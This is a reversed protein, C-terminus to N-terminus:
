KDGYNENFQQDAEFKKIKQNQIKQIKPIAESLDFQFRIMIKILKVYPM